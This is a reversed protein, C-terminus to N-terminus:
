LRSRRHLEATRKGLLAMAETGASWSKCWRPRRSQTSRRPGFFRNLHQLADDLRQGQQPAAECLPSRQSDADETRYEISRCTGAHERQRAHARFASKWM